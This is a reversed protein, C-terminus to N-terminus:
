VSMAFERDGPENGRLHVFVPVTAKAGCDPVVM